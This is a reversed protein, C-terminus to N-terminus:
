AAKKSRKSCFTESCRRAWSDLKGLGKDLSAMTKVMDESEDKLWVRFAGLYVASLAKTRLFGRLGSTSIGAAELVLAMSHRLHCLQSVASFPDSSGAKVVSKLGQKYPSLAEFRNMMLDFLRDKVPQELRDKEEGDMLQLDAQVALHQLIAAKSPFIAYLESLPLKAAVAIEALSLNQWGQEISLRMATQLVHNPIDTKKM